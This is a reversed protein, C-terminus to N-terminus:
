GGFLAEQRKQGCHLLAEIGDVVWEDIDEAKARNIGDVIHSLVAKHPDEKPKVERLRSQTTSPNRLAYAKTCFEGTVSDVYQTFSRM